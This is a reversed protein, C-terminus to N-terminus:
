YPKVGPHDSWKRFAMNAEEMPLQEMRIRREGPPKELEDYILSDDFGAQQADRRDAAYWVVPIRAWYIAGMCMPCPECSAYLECGSLDHTGLAEAGRRIALVEAHATPDHDPTVRNAAEAIIEGDKVLVAGFPGGDRDINESALKLAKKMWQERKM